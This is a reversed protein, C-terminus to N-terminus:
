LNDQGRLKRWMITFVDARKSGRCMWCKVFVYHQWHDECFMLGSDIAACDVARKPITGTGGCVKCNTQQRPPTM